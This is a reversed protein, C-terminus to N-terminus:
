NTSLILFKKFFINQMTAGINWLSLVLAQGEPEPLIGPVNSMRAKTGAEAM